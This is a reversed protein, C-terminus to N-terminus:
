FLIKPIIGDKILYVYFKPSFRKKYGICKSFFTPRSPPLRDLCNLQYYCNFRWRWSCLKLSNASIFILFCPGRTDILTVVTQTKELCHRRRPPINIHHSLTERPRQKVHNLFSILWKWVVPLSLTSIPFKTHHNETAQSHSIVRYVNGRSLDTYNSLDDLWGHYRPTGADLSPM